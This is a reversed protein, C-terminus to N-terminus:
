AENELMHRFQWPMEPPGALIIPDMDVMGYQLKHVLFDSLIRLTYM